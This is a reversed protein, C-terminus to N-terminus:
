SKGKWRRRQCKLIYGDKKARERPLVGDKRQKWAIYDGCSGWCAEHRNSCGFCPNTM